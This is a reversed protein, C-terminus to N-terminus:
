PKPTHPLQELYHILDEQVQHYIADPEGRLGIVGYVTVAEQERGALIHTGHNVAAIHDKVLDYCSQTILIDTGILKTLGEIRSAVNVTDGIATYELRQVSGVNGVVLEGHSIGIGNFLPPLKQDKLTTRLTALAQRMRLAALVANLADQEPGQSTPAGFEAMVADGIFKDITGRHQLIADVMVDLYTNLLSVTEEAGLQYSIRSFGRIDSFLVAAQLRHGVTLSNFDEPQNLIELAVSPAVYRELTRRLRQEGLRNSVAGTAIYTIGGMGLCAVPIAVPILRDRHVMLLYALAGWAVIAGLFGVLRPVPQTFRYGLSVGLAAIAIATLVGQALPNALAPNLARGEMLAALVHAHIEVGPMADDIPTRKRDQFSDAMPGIFVIKDKFQDAYLPWNNPELIQAFSVVPFTGTPGYFFIERGAPGPSSTGSAALTAASLSPLDDTFGHTQRLAEISQEPSLRYKGDADAALNILGVRARDGYIPLLLNTFQGFDSSSVDYGAALVVRDGWQELVAAMAADDAPGYGSPDVLLVDVAVAKAGAAMLQQIAQAYARRQWPWQSLPSFFPYRSPEARYLDGQSLSYEDIALIVIDTPVPVAGRLRLLFSEAQGEILLIWPHQSALAIAGFVAWSVMLGHGIQFIRRYPKVM